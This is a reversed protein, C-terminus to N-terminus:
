TCPFQDGHKYISMRLLTRNSNLNESYTGGHMHVFLVNLCTYMIVFISVFLGFISLLYFISYVYHLVCPM